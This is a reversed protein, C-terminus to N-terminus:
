QDTDEESPQAEAEESVEETAEEGTEEPAEEEQAESSEQQSEDLAAQLEANLQTLEQIQATKEALENKLSKITNLAEEIRSVATSRQQNLEVVRNELQGLNATSVAFESDTKERQEAVADFDERLQDRERLVKELMLKTRMLETKTKMAEEFAKRREENRERCGSLALFCLLIVLLRYIPKGEKM